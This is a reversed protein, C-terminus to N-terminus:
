KWPEIVQLSVLSISFLHNLNDLSILEIESIQAWIDIYRTYSIYIYVDRQSCCIQKNNNWTLCLHDLTQHKNLSALCAQSMVLSSPPPPSSHHCFDEFLEALYIIVCKFQGNSKISSTINHFNGIILCRGSLTVPFLCGCYTFLDM